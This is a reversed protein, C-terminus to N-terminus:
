KLLVMKTTHCAVDSEMRCIYTGSAAERGRSDRGNWIVDHSGPTFPADALTRVLRGAVDYVALRVRGADKGVWFRITTYPNFPNPWAELLKAPVGPTEAVSVAGANVLSVDDIYWGRATTYSDSGFRFRFRAIGEYGSLDFEAFQWFYWYGSYCPTGAPFPSNPNTGTVYPYGGVPTILQWPGGNLSMEVLGGDWAVNSSKREAEIWYWFTLQASGGSLYYGATYLAADLNNSYFYPGDNGCKWCGTGGPAHNKEISLHWEDGYLPTVNEHSWDYFLVTDAVGVWFSPASSYGNNDSINMDFFIGHPTPCTPSVSFEFPEQPLKKEGEAMSGYFASDVLLTVYPDSTSILGNIEMAETGYNYLEAFLQVDAGAQIIQEGSGQPSSGLEKSEIAIAPHTEVTVDMSVMSGYYPDVYESINRVAVQTDNGDYDASSPTSLFDFTYNPNNTGGSGPFPDGPDGSNYNNELDCEGDAQEVAVLAHVSGSGCCQDNNDDMAEDVHYIVLGGGGIYSDFLIPQRYEVIFYEEDYMGNTWLPLSNRSLEACAMSLGTTNSSLMLSASFRLKRKSWADFHVPTNGGNGWSGLAMVSWYGLGRGNYDLDYLDPLGLIHGYEHCFVGVKGNEPEMTYLKATVGDVIAPTKLFWQHSHIDGPDGTEEYGPGAHVIFLADVYGDDDGSNPIGDPGDSDFQSFDVYPDAAAVADEALRQANQPYAGLGRQNNVYYDYTLQVRVWVSVSGTIRFGGYSNELYYDRMSGTPYTGESFLLDQYHSPPYTEVDAVNDSFDVLIVVAKRHTAAAVPMGEQPESQILDRLGPPQNVGRSYAENMFIAEQQLRGQARLEKVLNPNLPMAFIPSAILFALLSVAWFIVVRQRMTEERTALM